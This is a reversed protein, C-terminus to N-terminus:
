NAVSCTYDAATQGKVGAIVEAPEDEELPPVTPAASGTPEPTEPEPEPANPDLASGIGTEGEELAFSEDNRIKELLAAAQSEIPQVKGLYVGTGGTTGPYQVFTINKTPIDKLVLAMSVMTDVSALSSSLQMSSTAVTAIGYLKTVDTLVGESQVKRILSSLYVQQSSIRGLDSGDGVGKRSRLFALAQRGELSYTGAEPLDLGTFEDFIPGDVCVDVGGM